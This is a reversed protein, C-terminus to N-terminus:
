KSQETDDEPAKRLADTYAKFLTQMQMSHLESAASFYAQRLNKVHPLYASSVVYLVYNGM